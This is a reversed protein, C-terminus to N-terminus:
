FSADTKVEVVAPVGKRVQELATKIAPVLASPEEVIDAYAHCARSMAAYDPSPKIETGVWNGSRVSYSSEGLAMKVTIKPATYQTNNLVICLFPAHHAAAAWLAAPPSGFIFSGDGEITVVTKQPSALKAGLAAGLGWGLNSGGSQFYTGPLSRKLQRLLAGANTVAEGLVITEADIAENLCRCIWDPSVPKQSCGSVAMREWEDRMKKNERAINESRKLIINKQEASISSRVLDCLAPLFRCSDARLLLDSPFGWMPYGEKLPDIDINIIRAEPRPRVRLPVYPVDQDIILIIDAKDVHHTADFGSFLPHTNPFNMYGPSSILRAGIAEALVVMAEVSQSHRGSYGTIILPYSAKVLASSIEALHSDDLGAYSAPAHRAVPPVVVQTMKEIMVDQPVTLYVPGCPDSAAVQFARQVVHQINSTSRLEYEWKVYNRVIGSQDFQEQMWHVQNVRANDINSPVRGSCLIIGARGRQANHLAGGVQQLGLDTHVFVVQPRGSVMFYGHAAAMAVSEHLCLIVGPTRKGMSQFKSISEQLPYTDTGPNLFIYEVGQDNLLELFAEIGNDVHITKEM